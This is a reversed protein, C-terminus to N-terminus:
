DGILFERFILFLKMLGKYSDQLLQREHTRHLPQM